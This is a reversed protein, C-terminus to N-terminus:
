PPGAFAALLVMIRPAFPRHRFTTASQSLALGRPRLRGGPGVIMRLMLRHGVCFLGRGRGHMVRPRTAASSAEHAAARPQAVKGGHGAFPPGAHRASELSLKSRRVSMSAAAAASTSRVRSSVRWAINSARQPPAAPGGPRECTIASADDASITARAPGPTPPCCVVHAGNGGVITMAPAFEGPM